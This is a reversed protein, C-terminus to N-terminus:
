VMQRARDRDRAVDRVRDRITCGYVKDYGECYGKKIHRHVM